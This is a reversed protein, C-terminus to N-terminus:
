EEMDEHPTVAVLPKPPDLFPLGHRAGLFPRPRVANERIELMIQGCGTALAVLPAGILYVAAVLSVGIAGGVAGVIRIPTPVRRAAEQRHGPLRLDPEARDAPTPPTTTSM